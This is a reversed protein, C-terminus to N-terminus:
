QRQNVMDGTSESRVVRVHPPPTTNGGTSSVARPHGPNSSPPPTVARRHTSTSPTFIVAPSLNASAILVAGTQLGATSGTAPSAGVKGATAVALTCALALGVLRGAIPTEIRNLPTLKRM